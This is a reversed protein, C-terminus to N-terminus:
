YVTKFKLSFRDIKKYPFFSSSFSSIESNSASDQTVPTVEGLTTLSSKSKAAVVFCKPPVGDGAGDGGRGSSSPRSAGAMWSM